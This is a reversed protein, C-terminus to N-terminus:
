VQLSVRRQIILMWGIVCLSFSCGPLEKGNGLLSYFHVVTFFLVAYIGYQTKAIDSSSGFM